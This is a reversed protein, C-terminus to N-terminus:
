WYSHCSDLAQSFANPYHEMRFYEGSGYLCLIDFRCPSQWLGNRNLWVQAAALLNRRKRADIAGYGGGHSNKSRTKVEVFVITGNQECVLDLELRGCRWNRALVMYGAASLIAAAADEGVIGLRLHPPLDELCIRDGNM